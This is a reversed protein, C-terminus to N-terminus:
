QVSIDVSPRMTALTKIIRHIPHNRFREISSAEQSKRSDAAPYGIQTLQADFRPGWKRAGLRATTSCNDVMYAVGRAHMYPLLSDVAEIVSENAIESYPHGRDLLLDIQAMMAGCFVGATFPNVETNHRDRAKRVRAGVNWMRSGDIEGMPYQKLRQGAMVVSRIENGSAVEDYIEALLGQVAGYTAAYARDFEQRESGQLGQYVSLIGDRSITRSIPGTISECAQDFAEEESFGEAVNRRYLSEVIGHVAGLLIAREGFIDSLYESQMTTKFTYPAGLGVSWALAIDTARGDIDQEVAFSTNIGAGNVDRGQEYLRRVSPGMGKPCVAIINNQSPFYDGMNRLHALLFGHSLGLTTGPRLAAFIQPYLEAQAADAILLLVLDSGRIVDFMEGLTGDAENFGAARAEEFSSSGERLGVVVRIPTGALSERLNQAQAPGQSGWGIVGITQIGQLARPILPFLNRGGRVFSEPQGELEVTEVRFIDSHFTNTFSM